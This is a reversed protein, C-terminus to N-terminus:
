SAIFVTNLVSGSMTQYRRVAAEVEEAFKPLDSSSTSKVSGMKVSGMEVEEPPPSGDGGGRILGKSKVSGMEVEEELLPRM